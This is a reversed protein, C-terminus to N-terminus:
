LSSGRTVKTEGEAQKIVPKHPRIIEKWFGITYLSHEIIYVIPISVLYRIDREQVTFKMGMATIIVLYLGLTTLFIWPTFILSLFLLPTILPPIVQIAWRRSAVRAMGWRLMQQSLEKLGRDQQRLIVVEPTYILKGRKILRRNLDLEESGFNINFGGVDLIDQRRYMSNGGHIGDVMKKGKLPRGQLANACGIFTAFALNVSRAWFERDVYIIPGGVGAIGADFERILSQLWDKSLICSADTFAVYEGEANEVGVQRAGGRTHYDEYLIKAPFKRVKQVTGDTSHGDVIIVEHPKYSQAFVAELCREIKDAENLVPIIVSIKPANM